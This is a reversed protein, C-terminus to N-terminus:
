QGKELSKCQQLFNDLFQAKPVIKNAPSNWLTNAFEIFSGVQDDPVSNDNSIFENAEDQTKGANKMDYLKGIIKVSAQCTFNSSAVLPQAPEDSSTSQYLDEQKQIPPPEHQTIKSPIIVGSVPPTPEDEDNFLSTELLKWAFFTIGLVLALLILFKGFAKM